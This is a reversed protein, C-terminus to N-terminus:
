HQTNSFQKKKGKKALTLSHAEANPPSILDMAVLYEPECSSCFTSDGQERVKMIDM